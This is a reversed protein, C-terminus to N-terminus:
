NAAIDPKPQPLPVTEAVAVQVTLQALLAGFLITPAPM